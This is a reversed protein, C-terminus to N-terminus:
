VRIANRRDEEERRLRNEYVSNLTELMKKPNKIFEESMKERAERIEKLVDPKKLKKM